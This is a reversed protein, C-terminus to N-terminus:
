SYMSIINLKGHMDLNFIAKVGGETKVAIQKLFSLDQAVEWKIHIQNLMEIFELVNVEDTLKFLMDKELTLNKSWKLKITIVHLSGDSFTLEYNGYSCIYTGSNDIATREEEEGWSASVVEYKDKLKIGNLIGTKLFVYINDM